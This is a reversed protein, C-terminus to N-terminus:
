SRSHLRQIRGAFTSRLARTASLLWRHYADYRNVARLDFEGESYQIAIVDRIKDESGREWTIEADGSICSRLEENIEQRNAEFTDFAAHDDDKDIELRVALGTGTARLSLRYDSTSTDAAIPLHYVHPASSSHPHVDGRTLAEHSGEEALAVFQEFFQEQYVGRDVDEGYPWETPEVEPVLRFAARNCGEIEVVEARLAFVARDATENHDRVAERHGDTFEGAIWVIVDADLNASYTNAKGWHDHDSRGFQNEVVVEVGFTEDRAYIDVFYGEIERELEEAVLRHLGLVERLYHINDKDALWASFAEEDAWYESFPPRQLTSFETM